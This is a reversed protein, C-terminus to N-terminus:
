PKGQLVLPIHERKYETGDLVTVFTTDSRGAYSIASWSQAKPYDAVVQAIAAELSDLQDDADPNTVANGDSDELVSRVFVYVDLHFAPAIPGGFTRRGAGERETGASSVVVVPSQGGFDTPQDTYVQQAAGLQAALVAGLEERVRQRSM